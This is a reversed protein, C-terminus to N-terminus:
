KQGEAPPEPLIAIKDIDSDNDTMIMILAESTM